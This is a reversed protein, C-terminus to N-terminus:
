YTTFTVTGDVKFNVGSVKIMDGISVEIPFNGDSWGNFTWKPYTSTNGQPGVIFAVVAVARTWTKLKDYPGNTEKDWLFDVSFSGDELEDSAWNRGDDGMTTVDVLGHGKLDFSAKTVFASMDVGGISLSLNNGTAVACM